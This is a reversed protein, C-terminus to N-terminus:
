IEGKNILSALNTSIKTWVSYKKEMEYKSWSLKTKYEVSTWKYYNMGIRELLTFVNVRRVCKLYSLSHMSIYDRILLNFYWMDCKWFKVRSFFFRQNLYLFGFIGNKQYALSLLMKLKAYINSRLEFMGFLLLFLISNVLTLFFISFKCRSRIKKISPCQSYHKEHWISLFFKKKKFFSEYFTIM